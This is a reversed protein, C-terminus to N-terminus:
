QEGALAELEAAAEKGEKALAAAAAWDGARLAARGNSACVGIRHAIAAGKEAPTPEPEAVDAADITGVDEAAITVEEPDGM